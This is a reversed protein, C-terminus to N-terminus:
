TISKTHVHICAPDAGVGPILFGYRVALFGISIYCFECFPVWTYKVIDRSIHIDATTTLHSSTVPDVGGSDISM